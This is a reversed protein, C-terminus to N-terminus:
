YFLLKLISNAKLKLVEQGDLHYSLCLGKKARTLAVYLLRVQEYSAEEKDLWKLYQYIPDDQGEASKHLGLLLKFQGQYHFEQWRLLPPDDRRVGANLNPLFVYDFELGKAQHISLLSVKADDAVYNLKLREVDELFQQRSNILPYHALFQWYQLLINQELATFKFAGTLAMFARRVRTILLLEPAFIFPELVKVLPSNLELLVEWVTRRESKQAIVLLEDLSLHVMPSRLLAMWALRDGLHTLALTLSLLDLVLQSELLSEWNEAQVKINENILCHMLAKLPTRSRGLIGISANPEAQLIEQIKVCLADTEAKADSFSLLTVDKADAFNREAHSPTFPVAGTLSDSYKPFIHTLKDNIFQLIKADSRFNASLTLSKLKIAGLGKEQAELFLEVRADRFRYISQMPDGVLFLTRGDGANWTQTMLELMRFQLRSTDQFEDVLIHKLEREFRMLAASVPDTNALSMVAQLAEEQFDRYHHEGLLLQFHAATLPLIRILADAVQVVKVDLPPLAQIKTLLTLWREAEPALNLNEILELYASKLEPALQTNKDFRKRLEGKQTLLLQSIKKLDRYDNICLWAAIMERWAKPALQQWEQWLKEYLSAINHQLEDQLSISGQKRSVFVSLWEARKSLIDLLLRKLKEINNGFYLLITALPEAYEDKAQLHEILELMLADGLVSYDPIITAAQDVMRGDVNLIRACLADITIIALRELDQSTWQQEKIRAQVQEVLEAKDEDFTSPNQELASFLREKMEAAAKRTFTIALINRPHEVHLLLNLMRRVLVETKGSGAPAEVIFSATPNLAERRIELDIM